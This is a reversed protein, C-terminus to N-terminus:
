FSWDLGLIPFLGQQYSTRLTNGRRDWGLSAVNRRNTINQAGAFVTV